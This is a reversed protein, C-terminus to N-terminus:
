AIIADAEIEVLADDPVLSRVIVLTNAPRIDKFVEGHARAVDEWEGFNLVYVRTRIVDSLKGGAQELASGIKTLIHKAQAYADAPFLTNGHEDSM